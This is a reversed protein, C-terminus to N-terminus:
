RCGNEDMFNYIFGRPGIKKEFDVNWIIEETLKDDNVQLSQYSSYILEQFQFDWGEWFIIEFGLQPM